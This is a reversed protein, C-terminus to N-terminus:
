GAPPTGPDYEASATTSPESSSSMESVSGEPAPEQDACAACPVMVRAGDPTMLASPVRKGGGCAKCAGPPIQLLRAVASLAKSLDIQVARAVGLETMEPTGYAARLPAELAQAREQHVRSAHAVLHVCRARERKAAEWVLARISPGLVLRVSPDLNAVFLDVVAADSLNLESLNPM